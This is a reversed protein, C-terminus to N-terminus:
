LVTIPIWITITWELWDLNWWRYTLFPKFVEYFNTFSQSVKHFKTSSQLVEHFKTFNHVKPFKGTLLPVKTPGANRKPSLLSDKILANIIKELDNQLVIEVDLDNIDNVNKSKMLYPPPPPLWFSETYGLVFLITIGFLLFTKM